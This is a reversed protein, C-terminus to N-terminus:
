ARKREGHAFRTCAFRRTRFNSVPATQTLDPVPVAQTPSQGPLSWGVTLSADVLYTEVVRQIEDAKVTLADRLEAQWLRWDHWVAASGLGSALSALDEQEWRWAAKIRRQSRDLEAISPGTERLRLLEATIRPEVAAIDTGPAAELQIFFQGARHAAAHATEVWTALKETEVLSHWLRSHRGGCLLDALVDLIPADRHGRSVTRWGLLSRAASESEPLVFGRRGSQNPEVIEPRIYASDGAPIDAFHSSIRDLAAEPDLDGVVVM